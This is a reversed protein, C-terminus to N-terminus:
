KRSSSLTSIVNSTCKYEELREELDEVMSYTGSSITDQPIPPPPPPYRHGLIVFEFM